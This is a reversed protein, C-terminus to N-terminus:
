ALALALGLEFHRLAVSAVAEMETHEFCACGEGSFRVTLALQITKPNSNSIRKRLAKAAWQPSFLRLILRFV